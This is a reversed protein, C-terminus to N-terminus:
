GDDHEASAPLWGSVPGPVLCGGCSDCEAGPPPPQDLPWQWGCDECAWVTEAMKTQVDAIPAILVFLAASM